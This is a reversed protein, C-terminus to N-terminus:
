AVLVSAFRRAASSDLSNLCLPLAFFSFTVPQQYVAIFPLNAVALKTCMHMATQHMYSCVCCPPFCSTVTAHLAAMCTHRLYLSVHQLGTYLTHVIMELLLCVVPLEFRDMREKVKGLFREADNDKSQM